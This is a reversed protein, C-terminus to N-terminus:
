LALVGAQFAILAVISRMNRRLFSRSDLIFIQIPRKKTQRGRANGAMLIEMLSAQTWIALRAVVEDVPFGDIDALEVVALRTVRKRPQVRLYLAGLTMRTTWIALRAIGADGKAQARIAVFIWVTAAKRLGARRTVAGTSPLLDRKLADVFLEVV